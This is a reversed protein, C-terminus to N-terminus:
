RGHIIQHVRQFSLGAEAAIARLSMGARHAERIAEDRERSASAAKAAALAVKQRQRLTVM